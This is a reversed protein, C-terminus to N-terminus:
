PRVTNLLMLQYIGRQVLDADIHEIESVAKAIVSAFGGTAIVRINTEHHKVRLENKLAALRFAAEATVSFFVGSTICEATSRGIFRNPKRFGIDPLQATNEFLSRLQTAAGPLIAGGLYVGNHTVVEYTTATGFDAVIVASGNAWAFGAIAAAIRDAGLKEPTQYALRIPLTVNSSVIFSTLYLIKEIAAVLQTTVKPVVSALGIRSINKAALSRIFNEAETKKSLTKTQITERKVIKSGQWFAADTHTNGVDLTLIHLKINSM